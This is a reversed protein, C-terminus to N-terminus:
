RSSAAPTEHEVPEAQWAPTGWGLWTSSAIPIVSLVRAAGQAEGEAVRGRLGVDVLDDVASGAAM